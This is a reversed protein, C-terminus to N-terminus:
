TTPSDCLRLAPVVNEFASKQSQVVDSQEVAGFRQGVAASESCDAVPPQLQIAIYQRVMNRIACSSAWLTSIVNVFVYGALEELMEDVNALADDFVCDLRHLSLLRNRSRRGARQGVAARDGSLTRDITPSSEEKRRLSVRAGLQELPQWRNRAAARTTERAVPGIEGCVAGVHARRARLIARGARPRRALLAQAAHEDTMNSSDSNREGYPTRPRDRSDRRVMRITQHDVSFLVADIVLRGFRVAPEEAAVGVPAPRNPKRDVVQEDLRQLLEM